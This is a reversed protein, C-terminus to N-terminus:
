PRVFDLIRDWTLVRISQAAYLFNDRVSLAMNAKPIDAESAAAKLMRDTSRGIIIGGLKINRHDMVGFRQRFDQDGSALHFYHLLQNEAKAFEKTPRCRNQNDDYEFLYSQPAKLEWIYAFAVSQRRDNNLVASVIFDASGFYNRDEAGTTIKTPTGHVLFEAAYHLYKACKLETQGENTQVLAEFRAYSDADISV